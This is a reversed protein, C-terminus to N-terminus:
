GRWSRQRAHDGIPRDEEEDVWRTRPREEWRWDERRREESLERSPSRRRQPPSEGREAQRWRAAEERRPDRSSRDRRDDAWREGRRDPSRSRSRRWQSRPYRGDDSKVGADPDPYSHPSPYDVNRSGTRQTSHFFSSSQPAASSSSLDSRLHSAPESRRSPPAEEAPAPRADDGHHREDWTRALSRRPEAERMGGDNEARRPAPAPADAPPSPSPPRRPPAAVRAAPSSDRHSHGREGKVTSHPQQAANRQPPPKTDTSPTAPSSPPSSASPPAPLPQMRPKISFRPVGRVRRPKTKDVVAAPSGAPPPPSAVEAALEKKLAAPIPEPLSPCPAPQPAPPTPPQVPAPPEAAAVPPPPVPAATPPAASRPRSAHPSDGQAKTVKQLDKPSLHLSPFATCADNCNPHVSYRQVHRRIKSSIASSMGCPRGDELLCTHSCRFVRPGEFQEGRGVSPEQQGEEKTGQQFVKEAQVRLAEEKEQVERQQQQSTEKRKREEEQAQLVRRVLEIEKVVVVGSQRLGAITVMQGMTDQMLVLSPHFPFRSVATAAQGEDGEERMLPLLQSHDFATATEPLSATRFAAAYPWFSPDSAFANFFAQVLPLTPFLSSHASTLAHLWVSSDHEISHFNFTLAVKSTFLIPLPSLPPAPLPPPPPPPAVEEGRLKDQQQRWKSKKVGKYTFEVFGDKTMAPPLPVGAQEWGALLMRVRVEVHDKHFHYGTAAYLGQVVAPYDRGHRILMKVLARDKLEDWGVQHGATLFAAPNDWPPPPQSYISHDVVVREDRQVVTVTSRPPSLPSPPVRPSPPRREEIAPAPPKKRKRSHGRTHQQPHGEWASGDSRTHQGRPPKWEQEGEDQEGQEGEDEEEGSSDDSDDRVQKKGKVSMTSSYLGFPLRVVARTAHGPYLEELVAVAEINSPPPSPRGGGFAEACDLLASSPTTSLHSLFLSFPLPHHISSARRPKLTLTSPPSCPPYTSATVSPNSLQRPSVPPSLPPLPPPPTHTIRPSPNRSPSFDPSRLLSSPPATPLSPPQPPNLDIASPSPHAPIVLAAAAPQAPPPSPPPSPSPSAPPPPPPFNPLPPSLPRSPSLRPQQQPQALPPPASSFSAPPKPRSKISVQPVRPRPASGIVVKSRQSTSAVPTPWSPFPASPVPPSSAPSSSPSQQHSPPPPSPSPHSLQISPQPPSFAPLNPQTRSTDLQEEDVDGEEDPLRRAAEM